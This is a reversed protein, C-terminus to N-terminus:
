GFEAQKGLDPRVTPGANRISEKWAERGAPAGDETVDILYAGAFETKRALAGELASKAAEAEFRTADELRDVFEGDARLYVVRGDTLLNATVAKM